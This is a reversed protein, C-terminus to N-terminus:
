ASRRACRGTAARARHVAFAVGLLRRVIGYIPGASASCGRRSRCRCLMLTYLLIQRRTERAGPSSRCCRCAPRPTIAPAYLSLAWFHPPTWFFVIAFLALPVLRHRRDGRGLRDAAAVRRGRRRDRHEAAHPAEALDHLRLRLLRDVAGAARRGALNIALGM